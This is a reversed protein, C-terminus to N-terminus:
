YLPQCYINSRIEGKLRFAGDESGTSGNWTVEFQQVPKTELEAWTWHLIKVGIFDDINVLAPLIPFIYLANPDSLRNIFNTQLEKEMKSFVGQHLAGWFNPNQALTSRINNIMRNKFAPHYETAIADSSPADDEELLIIFAIVSLGHKQEQPSMTSQDLFNLETQWTGIQRPIPIVEGADWGDGGNTGINGHGGHPVHAWVPNSSNRQTITENDLTFYALWLYPEADGSGDAEDIVEISNCAVQVQMSIRCVPNAGCNQLDIARRLTESQSQAGSVRICWDYHHNYEASWRPGSLGCNSSLNELQQAIATKAYQACAMDDQAYLFFPNQVSLLSVIIWIISRKKM